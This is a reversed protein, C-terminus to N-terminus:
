CLSQWPHSRHAAPIIVCYAIRLWGTACCCFASLGHGLGSATHETRCATIKQLRLGEASHNARRKVAAPQGEACRLLSRGCVSTLLNLTLASSCSGGGNGTHVPGLPNIYAANRSDRASVDSRKAPYPHLCLLACSEHFILTDPCAQQQQCVQPV